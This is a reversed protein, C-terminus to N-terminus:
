KKNYKEYVALATHILGNADHLLSPKRELPKIGDEKDFDVVDASSENCKSKARFFPLAESIFLLVGLVITSYEGWCEGSPIFSNLMASTNNSDLLMDLDFETDNM